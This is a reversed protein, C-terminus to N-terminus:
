RFRLRFKKLDIKEGDESFFEAVMLLGKGCVIVYNNQKKFIVKGPERNSIKVDSTIESDKIIIKSNDLFTFAGNYPYGVADIFRKITSSDYHWNIKYDFNDRWLSYTALSEDQPRSNLNRSLIKSLISNLLNAYCSSIKEIASEIKIPYSIKIIKQEIIEGKDYETSARLATVGIESDGNILSTVLPNFGRYEPLISDHFVILKSDDNILFRWGIAISYDSTNNYTKNQVVYNILNNKCYKIILDSYDNVINKDRGIIVTKILKYYIQDINRLSIFGKNGILYLNVM